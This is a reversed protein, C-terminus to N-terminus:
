LTGEEVDAVSHPVPNKLDITLNEREKTKSKVLKTTKIQPFATLDAQSRLRSTTGWMFAPDEMSKTDEMAPKTGM